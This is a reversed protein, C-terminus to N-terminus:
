TTSIARSSTTSSTSRSISATTRSGARRSTTPASASPATARASRSSASRRTESHAEDREADRLRAAAAVDRARPEQAALARGPVRGRHRDAPAHHPDGLRDQERAPRRRGLRSVHRRQLSRRTSRSRRRSGRAGPLVAVTVTSTHIRGQAETTPCASCATCAPSSSSSRTRAAARSARQHDRSLRWARRSERCSRSAGAQREAYRTYMRFLDGAFIAAEDGGTGARIELFFNADDDPDKPVLHLLLNSARTAARSSSTTSTKRSCRRMEPDDSDRLEGSAAIDAELKRYADFNDAVEALRAYEKSLERFRDKDAITAPDGLLRGVEEYREVLAVLKDRLSDKM